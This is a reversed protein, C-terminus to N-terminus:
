DKTACGIHDETQEDNKETGNWSGSGNGALGPQQSDEGSRGGTLLHIKRITKETQGVNQGAVLGVHTSLIPFNTVRIRNIERNIIMMRDTTLGM